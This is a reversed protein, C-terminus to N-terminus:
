PSPAPRDTLLTLFLHSPELAQVAHPMSAPLHLVAGPVLDFERGATTVRVHGGIAQMLLPHPSRHEKLVAGADLALLVLRAGDANLVTRHEIREARIPALVALSDVFVLGSVEDPDTDRNM